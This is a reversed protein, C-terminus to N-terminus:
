TAYPYQVRFIWIGDDTDTSPDGSFLIEIENPGSNYQYDSTDLPLGESFVLIADEDVPTQTLPIAYGSSFPDTQEVRDIQWALEQIPAGGNTPNYAQILAM